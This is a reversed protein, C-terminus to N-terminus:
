GFGLRKLNAEPCGTWKMLPVNGQYGIDNVGIESTWFGSATFDRFSNFWKVGQSYEEKAKGPWAINDLMKRRQPESCEVFPSGFRERCEHDLWALGGRHATQMGPELSLMTDMFEPVGADTAAGSHDDKPIIYDVLTRVTDWEHATYVKPAYNGLARAAASRKIAVAAQAPTPPLAADAAIAALIAMLERRSLTAGNFESM